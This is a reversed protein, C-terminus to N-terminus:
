KQPVILSAALEASGLGVQFSCGTGRADTQHSKTFVQSIEMM